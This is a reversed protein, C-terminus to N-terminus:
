LTGTGLFEWNAYGCSIWRVLVGEAANGNLRMEMKGSDNGPCTSEYHIPTTTVLDVSLHGATPLTATVNGSLTLTGDPMPGGAPIAGNSTLKGSVNYSVDQSFTVTDGVGQRIVASIVLGWTGGTTTTKASEHVNIVSHDFQDSSADYSDQRLDTVTLDFGYLNDNTDRYRIVGRSVQVDGTATDTVTCNAATYTVTMDDPIGDADTDTGSGVTAPTCSASFMASAFPTAGPQLRALATLRALVQAPIASAPRVGPALGVNTGGFDMASVAYESLLVGTQGFTEVMHAPFTAESAPGSSGNDDGGCAGAVILVSAGVLARLSRVFM